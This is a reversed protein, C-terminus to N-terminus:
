FLYDGFEAHTLVDTQESELIPRFHELKIFPGVYEESWADGGRIAVLFAKGNHQLLRHRRFQRNYTGVMGTYRLEDLVAVATEEDRFFIIFAQRVPQHM